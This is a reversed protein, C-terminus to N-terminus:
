NYFVHVFAIRELLHSASVKFTFCSIHEPWSLSVCQCTWYRSFLHHNWPLYNRRKSINLLSRIQQDDEGLIDIREIYLTICCPVCDKWVWSQEITAKDLDTSQPWFTDSLLILHSIGKACPMACTFFSPRSTDKCQENISCDSKQNQYFDIVM